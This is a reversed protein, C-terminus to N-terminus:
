CTGNRRAHAAALDRPRALPVQQLDIRRRREGHVQLRDAAARGGLGGAESRGARPRPQELPVQGGPARDGSRHELRQAGGHAPHHDALRGAHQAPVLHAVDAGQRRARHCSGCAKQVTADTIPFARKPSPPAARRDAAAGPVRVADREDAPGNCRRLCTEAHPRPQRDNQCLGGARLRRRWPSCFTTCRRRAWANRVYTEYLDPVQRTSPALEVLAVMDIAACTASEARISPRSWTRSSSSKTAGSAHGRSFRHNGSRYAPQWFDRARLEELARRVDEVEALSTEARTRVNTGSPGTIRRDGREALFRRSERSLHQEIEHERASFFEFAHARMSPRTLATHVAIAALWGSALAKKVGASSLPDIFSGADGVLLWREGAYDSARYPSADFGRPAEIMSRMPPSPASSREDQAIEARYVDASSGGRALGSRQPDVMAAIHRLGPASPVSWM